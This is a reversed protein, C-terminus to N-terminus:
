TEGWFFLSEICDFIADTIEQGPTVIVEGTAPDVVQWQALNGPVVRGSAPGVVLHSQATGWGSLVALYEDITNYSYPDHKMREKRWEESLEIAAMGLDYQELSIGKGSDWAVGVYASLTYFAATIAQVEEPKLTAVFETAQKTPM